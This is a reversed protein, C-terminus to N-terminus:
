HILDTNKMFSDKESKCKECMIRDFKPQPNPIQSIVIFFYSKYM